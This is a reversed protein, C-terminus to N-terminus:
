EFKQYKQFKEICSLVKSPDSNFYTLGHCGSIAFVYNQRDKAELDFMDLFKALKDTGNVFNGIYYYTLDIVM